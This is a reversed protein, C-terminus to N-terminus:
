YETVGCGACNIACGDDHLKPMSADGTGCSCLPLDNLCKDTHRRQFLECLGHEFDGLYAVPDAEMFAFGVCVWGLPERRPFKEHAYVGLRWKCICCCQSQGPYKKLNCVM